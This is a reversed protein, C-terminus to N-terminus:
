AVNVINAKDFTLQYLEEYYMVFLKYVNDIHTLIKEEDEPLTATKVLVDWVFDIHDDEADHDVHARQGRVYEKGMVKEINNIIDPQTKESASEIFYSSCLSALPRGEHEFGYYFYGQLLKTSLLPETSYVENKSVGVKKLDSAFLADHLMEDGTYECWRKALPPNHKTFYHITLGDITRKMRLRLIIEILNRKYYEINIEKGDKQHCAGSVTELFTNILSAILSDVRSRFESHNNSM